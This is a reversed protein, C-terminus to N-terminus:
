IIETPIKVCTLNEERGWSDQNKRDLQGRRLFPPFFINLELYISALQEPFKFYFIEKLNLHNAVRIGM